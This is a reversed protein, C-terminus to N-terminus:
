MTVCDSKGVPILKVHVCMPVSGISSLPYKASLHIENLSSPLPLLPQTFETGLKLKSLHPPLPSLPHNFHKGLEIKQIKYPLPSLPHDFYNGLRLDTLSPPLPFLPQNFNSLIQLSTLSSPLPPLPINYSQEDRSKSFKLKKLYPPLYKLPQNFHSGFKIQKISSPFDFNIPQNFMSGTSFKKLRPPLYVIINTKIHLILLSDPLSDLPFRYCEGLVLSTLSPPFEKIPLNFNQGLSLSSLSLPFPPLLQCFINGLTLVSLSSPLSDIFQNFGGIVFSKLSLPLPPLPNAYTWLYLIEIKPPLSSLLYPDKARIEMFILSDPLNELIKRNFYFSLTLHTLTPPLLTIEPCLYHLSNFTKLSPPFIFNQRITNMTVSTLSSPLQKLSDVFPSNLKLSLLSPPIEFSLGFAAGFSLHLLSNPLPCNIEQNFINGFQLFILHPPLHTIPQNFHDGFSLSTLSSPLLNGVSQNFHGSLILSSLLPPFQPLPHDFNLSLTLSSLSSPLSLHPFQPSATVIIQKPKYFIFKLDDTYSFYILQLCIFLYILSYLNRYINYYFLYLCLM